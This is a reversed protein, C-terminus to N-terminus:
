ITDPMLETQFLQYAQDDCKSCSVMNSGDCPCGCPRQSFGIHNRMFDLDCNCLPCKGSQVLREMEKRDMEQEQEQKSKDPWRESYLRYKQEREEKTRPAKYRARAQFIASQKL